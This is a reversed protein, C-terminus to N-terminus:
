HQDGLMLLIRCKELTHWYFNLMIIMKLTVINPKHVDLIWDIFGYRIRFNNIKALM